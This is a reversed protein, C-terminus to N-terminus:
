KMVASNSKNDTKETTEMKAIELEGLAETPNGHQAPDATCVIIKMKQELAAVGTGAGVDM